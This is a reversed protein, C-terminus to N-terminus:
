RDIHIYINRQLMFGYLLGWILVINYWYHKWTAFLKAYLTEVLSTKKVAQKHEGLRVRLTRKTEGVHMIKNMVQWRM